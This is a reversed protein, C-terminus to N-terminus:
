RVRILGEIQSQLAEMNPEGVQRFVIRGYADLLLSQPLGFVGGFSEGLKADGMLVPYSVAHKAVFRKVLAEDDDMSVGIVQLGAGGYRHQWRSFVPIETVCPGCWTAWFNLLVVRGRFRNLQLPRGSLDTRTFDPAITNLTGLPRAPTDAVVIPAGLCAFLAAMDLVRRRHWM